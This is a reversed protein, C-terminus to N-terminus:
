RYPRQDTPNPLLVVTVSSVFAALFGALAFEEFFRESWRKGNGGQTTYLAVM